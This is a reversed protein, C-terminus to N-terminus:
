IYIYRQLPKEIIQSHFHQKNHFMKRVHMVQLHLQWHLMLVLGQFFFTKFVYNGPLNNAHKQINMHHNLAISGM